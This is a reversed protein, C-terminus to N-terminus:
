VIREQARLWVEPLEGRGATLYDQYSCPVFDGNLLQVWWRETRKSKIFLIPYTLVEIHYEVYNQPHEEYSLEKQAAYYGDVFYWIMQAILKAGLDQPDEDALYGYIGFSKMKSSMGAHRALTCLEDGFLGNPSPHNFYTGESARLVNMDISVINSNRFIPEMYLFEHKVRGLRYFDFRLKDLTEIMLPNTYYSQFGVLNMHKVFNNPSLLLDTLYSNEDMEEKEELDLKQDIISLEVLEKNKQFPYYQYLTYDQTGGILIVVKNLLYLENLVAKLVKPTHADEQHPLLTGIDLVKIEDHWDYLEYLAKRIKNAAHVKSNNEMPHCALLVIDAEEIGETGAISAKIKHGIQLKNLSALMEKKPHEDEFFLKFDINM